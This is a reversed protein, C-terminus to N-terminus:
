GAGPLTDLVGRIAAAEARLRGVREHEGRAEYDHAAQERETMEAGLIAVADADTLVRRAVETSGVGVPAEEIAGGRRTTGTDVAEANALAAMASRLGSVAAKDRCKMASRLAARLHTQITDVPTSNHSSM